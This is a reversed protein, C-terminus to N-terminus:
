RGRGRDRGNNGQGLLVRGLPRTDGGDLFTRGGHNEFGVLTPPDIGLDTEAVVDGVARGAGPETYASFWGLGPLREGGATRYYRGLLQYGGCVALMPLGNALAAVLRDGRALFDAAIRTQQRDEGGGMFVLDAAAPDWSDGVEVAQVTFGIGRWRARRALALVNGRDGYLNMHEPYLHALVLRRETM